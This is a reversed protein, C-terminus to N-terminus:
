PRRGGTQEGPVIPGSQTLTALSSATSLGRRGGTQEGAQATQTSISISLILVGAILIIPLKSAANLVEQARKRARSRMQQVANENM